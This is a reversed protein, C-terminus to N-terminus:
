YKEREGRAKEAESQPLTEGKKKEPLAFPLPMLERRGGRKEIALNGGEAKLLHCLFYKGGEGGRKGKGGWAHHHPVM